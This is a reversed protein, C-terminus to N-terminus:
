VSRKNKVEVTMAGDIMRIDLSDNESVQNISNVLNGEKTVIGYGRRMVAFPSLSDIKTALVNLKEKESSLIAQIKQEFVDQSHGLRQRRLEIIKSARNEWQHPEFRNIKSRELEMRRSVILSMRQISKNLELALETKSKIAIEAAASPTAARRDAVFDSITFDTEHGVGTIIPIRSHYIAEAVIEENFAWLEEISGGGRALIILDVDDRENFFNIGRCIEEKSQEGQVRIPYILLESFNSRRKAVSLIDQIAAGTPSTLIGIKMPLLPLAKKHAQDFYGKAQLKGKLAEFRVHLAGLGINEMGVANLQYRGDREYITIQGKAHVRDGNKPSFGILDVYQSFMVCAIKSTDDKLTFYAHGSSHRIYNSIEGEIIVNNIIPDTSLLRKIYRTVESVTFAKMKMM